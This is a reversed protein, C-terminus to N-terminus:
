VVGFMSVKDYDNGGDEEGVEAVHWGLQGVVDAGRVGGLCATKGPLIERSTCREVRAQPRVTIMTISPARRRRNIRSALLNMPLIHILIGRRRAFPNRILILLPQRRMLTTLPPPQPPFADPTASTSSTTHHSTTKISHHSHPKLLRPQKHPLNTFVLRSM